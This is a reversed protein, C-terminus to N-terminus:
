NELLLVSLCRENYVGQMVGLPYYWRKAVCCDLEIHYYSKITM